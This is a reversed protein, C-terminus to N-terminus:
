REALQKEADGFRWSLFKFIKLVFLAKLTFYFPTKMIKLPSESFNDWDQSHEMLVPSEPRITQCNKFVKCSVLNGIKTKM